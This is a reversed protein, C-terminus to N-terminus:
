HCIPEGIARGIADWSAMEMASKLATPRVADVALLEEVDFLSRGAIMPLISHRREELESPRWELPAEGWGELGTDCVLRVVLSRVRHPPETSPGAVLYFELDSIKM